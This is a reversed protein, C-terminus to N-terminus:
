PGGFTKTNPIVAAYAQQYPSYAPNTRHLMAATTDQWFPIAVLDTAVLGQYDGIFHGSGSIPPNVSPDWMLRTVRTEKWTLGGDNSRAFFTDIYFNQPDNRRDFWMMNLQGSATIALAQQFQDKGNGVADQNVRLPASWITGGDTSKVLLIDADCVQGEPVESAPPCTGGAITRHYDAWSVYVTGNRPDVDAWPLSLNRFASNPFQRPIQQITRVTIPLSFTLGGDISKAMRIRGNGAFDLWFVYLAGPGGLVAPPGVVVHCGIVTRDAGSVPVPVSWTAGADTSRSVYVALNAVAADFSWCTYLNGSRGDRDPGSNDVIITNKDDLFAANSVPDDNRHIAIPESWTRGGDTSKHVSMGWGAGTASDSADRTDLVMAYANGEDDWAFWIDSTIYYDPEDGTQENPYGPLFGNETWSRGGDFSVFTGIKFRYDPLNQYFKSGAVLNNPDLPNMAIHPESYSLYPGSSARVPAIQGSSGKKSSPADDLAIFEATGTYQDAVVLWPNVRVLYTGAPEILLVSESTTSGQASSGVVNGASGDPNAEYVYMDFDNDVSGWRITIRVGGNNADWHGAPVAVTLTFVDCAHVVPIGGLDDECTQTGTTNSVNGGVVTFAGTWTVPGGDPTITGASPDAALVPPALATVVLSVSACLVAFRRM